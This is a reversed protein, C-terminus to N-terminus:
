RSINEDRLRIRLQRAERRAGSTFGGGCANWLIRLREGRATYKAREARVDSATLPRRRCKVEADDGCDARGPGGRHPRRLLRCARKEVRKWRQSM